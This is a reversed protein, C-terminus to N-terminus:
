SNIDSLFSLVRKIKAQEILNSISSDLCIDYHQFWLDVTTEFETEFSESYEIEYLTEIEGNYHKLVNDEMHEILQSADEDDNILQKFYFLFGGVTESPLKYHIGKIIKNYAPINFKEKFGKMTYNEDDGEEECFSIYNLSNTEKNYYINTPNCESYQNNSSIIEAIIKTLKVDFESNKIELRKLDFSDINFDEWDFVYQKVEVLIEPDLFLPSLRENLLKQNNLEKNLLVTKCILECRFYFESDWFCEKALLTLSSNVLPKNQLRSYCYAVKAYLHIANNREKIQATYFNILESYDRRKRLDNELSQDNIM